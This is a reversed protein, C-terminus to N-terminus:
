MVIGEMQSFQFTIMYIWEDKKINDLPHLHLVVEKGKILLFPRNQTFHSNKIIGSTNKSLAYQSNTDLLHCEVFLSGLPLKGNKVLESGDVVQKRSDIKEGEAKLIVYKV